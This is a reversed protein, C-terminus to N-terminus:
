APEKVISYLVFDGKASYAKLVCDRLFGLARVLRHGNEFDADVTAEIRRFHSLWLFNRIIGTLAIIHRRALDSMMVWATGYGPFHEIVGACAVVQGERDTITYSHPQRALDWAGHMAEGDRKVEGLSEIEDM